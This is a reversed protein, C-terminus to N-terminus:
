PAISETSVPSVFGCSKCTRVTVRKSEGYGGHRLLAPQVYRVLSQKGGCKHCRRRRLIALASM